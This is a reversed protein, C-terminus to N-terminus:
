PANQPLACRSCCHHLRLRSSAADPPHEAKGTVTRKRSERCPDGAAGESVPKNLTGREVGARQMDQCVWRYGTNHQQQKASPLETPVAALSRALRSLFRSKIEPLLLLNKDDVCSQAGDLRWDLPCRPSGRISRGPRSVSWEDYTLYNHVGGYTKM